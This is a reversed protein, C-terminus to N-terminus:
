DSFAETFFSYVAGGDGFLGDKAAGLHEAKAKEEANLFKEKAEAVRGPGIEESDVDEVDEAERHNEHTGEAVEGAACREARSTGARYEGGEASCGDNGHEGRREPSSETWFKERPGDLGVDVADVDEVGRLWPEKWE